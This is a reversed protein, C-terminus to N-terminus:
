SLLARRLRAAVSAATARADAVIADFSQRIEVWSEGAAGRVREIKGVAERQRERLASVQGEVEERLGLIRDRAQDRISREAHRLGDRVDGISSELGRASRQMEAYASRWDAPSGRLARTARRAKPRAAIVRAAPVTSKSRRSSAAAKSRGTAPPSKRASKKRTPTVPGSKSGGAVRSPRKAGSTSGATGAAVRRRAASKAAAPKTTKTKKARTGSRKAM